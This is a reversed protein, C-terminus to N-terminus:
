FISSSDEITIVETYEIQSLPTVTISDSPVFQNNIVGLSNSFSFVENIEEFKENSSRSNATNPGNKTSGKVKERKYTKPQKLPTKIGNEVTVHIREKECPKALKIRKAQNDMNSKKDNINKTGKINDVTNINLETFPESVSVSSKPIDSTIEPFKRKTPTQSLTYCIPAIIPCLCNCSV